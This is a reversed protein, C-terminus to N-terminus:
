AGFRSERVSRSERPSAELRRSSEDAALLSVHRQKAEHALTARVRLLRGRWTTETPPILAVARDLGIFAEGIAARVEASLADEQHAAM